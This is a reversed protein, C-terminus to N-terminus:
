KIRITWFNTGIRTFAIRRDGGERISLQSAIQASTLPFDRKLLEARTGRLERRLTKPDYAEIRDIALVKGLAGQPETEAFGYGDNSWLHATDHLAMCAVRAKQLAVDPTVLWRYRTPDFPTACPNNKVEMRPATFSGLGLATATIRPQRGDAYVVVEKCEGGLSVVEVECSGFITFAEDVDFLPSNKLCLRGSVRQLAPMLAPINPSCDELRVLKRGDAHRRDPDAYIWDFHERTTALYEEAAACVVEVNVVGMRRLNDRTITALLPDRELAVVRRFHRGLACADVGLGGTLDLAMDGEIRKHAACEESSAQEFALSPLICQAARYSPLKTAARALYKVQTAVLAAQPIHRDLAVQLPDRDRNEAIAQQVKPTCLIAYTEPTLM